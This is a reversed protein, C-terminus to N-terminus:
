YLVYLSPILRIYRKYVDNLGSLATLNGTLCHHNICSARVELRLTLRPLERMSGHNLETFSVVMQVLISLYDGSLGNFRTDIRRIGFCVANNQISFIYASHYKADVFVCVLIFQFYQKNFGFSVAFANPTACPLCYFCEMGFCNDSMGTCWIKLLAINMEIYVFASKLDILEPTLIKIWSM